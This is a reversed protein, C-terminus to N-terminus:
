GPSINFREAIFQFSGPPARLQQEILKPFALARRALDEKEWPYIGYDTLFQVGSLIFEAAELPTDTKFIGEECGQKILTAYLPAHKLVTKALIRTHMGENGPRHLHELLSREDSSINGSEILLQIKKLANGKAKLALAQMGELNQDVISEIVAEFLEDKSKFYHYITGKAIGLSDMVDQMTTNRVDKARYLDRAANIIDSRRESPKKVIRVM